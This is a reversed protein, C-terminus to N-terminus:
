LVQAPRRENLRGLLARPVRIRDEREIKPMVFAAFRNMSEVCADHDLTILNFTCLV